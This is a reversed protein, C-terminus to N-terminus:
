KNVNLFLSVWKTVKDFNAETVLGKLQLPIGDERQKKLSAIQRIDLWVELLFIIGASIVTIYFWNVKDLYPDLFDTWFHEMAIM